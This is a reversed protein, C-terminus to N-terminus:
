LTIKPKHNREGDLQATQVFCEGREEHTYLLLCDAPVIQYDELQIIDGVKLTHSEVQV